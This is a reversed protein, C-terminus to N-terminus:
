HAKKLGQLMVRPRQEYGVIKRFRFNVIVQTGGRYQDIPQDCPQMVSFDIFIENHGIVYILDELFIAQKQRM